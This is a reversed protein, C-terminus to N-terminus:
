LFTIVSPYLTIFSFKLCYYKYKRSWFTLLWPSVLIRVRSLYFFTDESRAIFIYKKTFPFIRTVEDTDIYYFPICAHDM